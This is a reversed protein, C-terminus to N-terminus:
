FSASLGGSFMTDPAGKSLGFGLSSLIKLRSAVNASLAMEILRSSSEGAILATKNEFLVGLEASGIRRGLGFAVTTQNSLDQGPPDGIFAYDWNFYGIWHEAAQHSIDIGIGFDHEGTGLGHKEDATPWKIRATLDLNPTADTQQLLYYRGQTVVDALGSESRVSLKRRGSQTRHARGAIFSAENTTEVSLLGTTVSADWADWQRRLTLPYYWTKVPTLGGYKGSAYSASGSFRWTQGHAQAATLLAILLATIKIM